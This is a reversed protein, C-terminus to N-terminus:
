GSLAQSRSNPSFLLCFSVSFSLRLSYHQCGILPTLPFFTSEVKSTAMTILVPEVGDQETTLSKDVQIKRRKSSHHQPRCHTLSLCLIIM